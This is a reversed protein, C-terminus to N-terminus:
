IKTLKKSAEEIKEAYKEMSELDKVALVDKLM